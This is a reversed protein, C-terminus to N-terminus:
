EVQARFHEPIAALVSPRQANTAAMMAARYSEVAKADNGPEGRAYINGLKLWADVSEEPWGRIRLEQALISLPADHNEKGLFYALRLTEYDFKNSRILEMAGSCAEDLHGSRSQLLLDLNRVSIADPQLLKARHFYDQANALDDIHLHGRALNTLLVVVFPRSDLVSQWIWNANNWDGWNALADAISPTLKRYHPNIAVGERTLQIMQAKAAEWRPSQPDRSQSITLAIKLARTLKSECVIAQWSIAIAILMALSTGILAIRNCGSNWHRATAEKQRAARSRLDSAALLGLGVAFLSGSPALRWPFGFCSVLMLALLSTLVCTRLAVETLNSRRAMQLTRRTAGLLYMALGALFVWGVVGYEGILQLFENHAYYDTELQRRADQYRPIQVEWSGAGVGQLPNAQIMQVTSLWMEARVSMSGQKYESADTISATRAHGRELATISHGLESAISANSSPISGMSVIVALFLIALCVLHGPSWNRSAIEHRALWAALTLLPILILLTAAASRTGTMLLAMTNFAVSLTILFVLRKTKASIALWAAFPLACVVYEAFFNRNVFTSAPMPGQPFLGFDFWFQLVAWICAITAGIHIGWAMRLSREATFTNIGLFLIASFISWRIAEVGALYAHSWTMSYLGYLMLFIPLLLIWATNVSASRNRLPWFYMFAASLSFLAVLISKLTDQLLEESPVGLAPVLVMM